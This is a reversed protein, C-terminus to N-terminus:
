GGATENATAVPTETPTVTGSDTETGTPTATGVATENALRRTVWTPREVVAGRRQTVRFRETVVVADGIRDVVFRARASVVLGELTVNVTATVNRRTLGAGYPARDAEARLRVVTANGSTTRGVVSFQLGSLMEYVYQGGDARPAVGDSRRRVSTTNERHSRRARFATVTRDAYRDVRGHSVTGDADRDRYTFRSRASDGDTVTRATEHSVLSGNETVVRRSHVFAADRSAFATAHALRVEGLVTRDRQFGPPRPPTPTATPTPSPTGALAPNVTEAGGDGGAGGGVAGCGALVVLTVVAAVHRTDGFM